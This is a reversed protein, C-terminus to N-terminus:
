RSTGAVLENAMVEDLGKKQEKMKAEMRDKETGVNVEGISKLKGNSEASVPQPKSQVSSSARAPSAGGRPKM